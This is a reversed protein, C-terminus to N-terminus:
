DKCLYAVNSSCLFSVFSSRHNKLDPLTVNKLDFTLDDSILPCIRNTEVNEKKVFKPVLLAVTGRFFAEIAKEVSKGSYTRM